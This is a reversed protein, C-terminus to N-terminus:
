PRAAIHRSRTFQATEVLALLRETEEPIGEALRAAALLPMWQVVEERLMGAAACYAELYPRAISPMALELLLLTRCADAAPPGCTADPWDIVIPAAFPGVVNFPHFDGHCIRDGAPRTGLADHLGRRLPEELAPARDFAAHLRAAFAPLGAGPAAHIKAQLGALVDLMRPVCAPDRQAQAAFPDGPARSMLLGWRGDFTGAARVVPAPLGAREVLSLIAAERFAETKGDEVYLKLVDPGHARVQARRGRGLLEGDATRTM